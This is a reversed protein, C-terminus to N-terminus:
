REDPYESTEKTTEQLPIDLLPLMYCLHVIERKCLMQELQIVQLLLVLTSHVAESPALANSQLFNSKIMYRIM